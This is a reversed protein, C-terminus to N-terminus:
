FPTSLPYAPTDNISTLTFSKDFLCNSPLLDYVNQEPNLYYRELADRAARHEAVKISPGHSEGLKWAGDGTYVGILFVPSNSQRGTEGELKYIPVQQKLRKMLAYLWHKPRESIPLMKSRELMRNTINEHVFSRINALGKPNHTIISGLIALLSEQYLRDYQNMDPLSQMAHAVGFTDVLHNLVDTNTYQAVSHNLYCTPIQPYKIFLFEYVFFKVINGGGIVYNYFTNSNEPFLKPHMLPSMQQSVTLEDFGYKFRSIFAFQASSPKLLTSYSLYSLKKMYQCLHIKHNQLLQRMTFCTMEKM